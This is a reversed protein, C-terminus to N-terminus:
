DADRIIQLAMEKEAQEAALQERREKTLKAYDKGVLKNALQRTVVHSYYKRIMEASTGLQKELAFYDLNEYLLGFTTYTHRLSYLSRNTNTRRDKLLNSDKMLIKFTKGLNTTRTGDSLRFIYKDVGKTILEDFTYNQLDNARDHIRMFFKTCNRRAVLERQKTKGDVSVMLVQEGHADYWSLHKWKLGYSETGHRMGTNALILVYDRLLERMEVSKDRKGDTEKIWTQMFKTLNRYEDLTFDSRRETKRGNNILQPIQAKTMYNHLLAEEFIRNLASNHTNMASASATRGFQENLWFSYQQILSYTINTIYHSGFFPILYKDIVRVYDAYVKKCQKAKLAAQMKSKTLRAIADFRKSVIPLNNKLQFKANLYNDEALEKAEKLDKTKTSARIWNDAVKYRAQWFSSDDRKTLTVAGDLIQVSKKSLQPM